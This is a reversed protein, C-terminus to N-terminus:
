RKGGSAAASAPRAVAPAVVAPSGVPPKEVVPAARREALRAQVRVRLGFEGQPPDLPQRETLEAEAFRDADSSLAEVFAWAAADDRVAADIQVVGTEADHDLRLLAVGAAAQEIGDLVQPWPHGLRSALRAAAQLSRADAVPVLSPASAAQIAADDDLDPLIGPLRRALMTKGAGPPGSMLLHHGGAAAVILADVADAAAACLQTVVQTSLEAPRKATSLAFITDGDLPSHAPRVARAIGDHGAADAQVAGEDDRHLAGTQRDDVRLRPGRPPPESVRPSM